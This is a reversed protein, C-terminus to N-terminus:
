KRIRELGASKKPAPIELPLELEDKALVELFINAAEAYACLVFLPAEMDGREWKSVYNREFERELGLRRLLGNQSEGLRIRIERLKSALHEPARSKKTKLPM